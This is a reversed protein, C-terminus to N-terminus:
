LLGRSSAIYWIHFSQAKYNWVLLDKFIANQFGIKQGQSWNICDFSVTQVVKIPSWMPIMGTLKTLIWHTTESFFINLYFLKRVVSSSRRVVCPSPRRVFAPWLLQGQASQTWTLKFFLRKRTRDAPLGLTPVMCKRIINLAKENRNNKKSKMKNPNWNWIM